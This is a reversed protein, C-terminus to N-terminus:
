QEFVWKGNVLKLQPTGTPQAGPQATAAPAAAPGFTPPPGLTPPIIHAPNLGLDTALGHIRLREDDLRSAAAQTMDNALTVLNELEALPIKGGGEILQNIAGRIRTSLGSFQAPRAAEAERVVSDPDLAREFLVIISEAGGPLYGNSSKAANLATKMQAVATQGDRVKQSVLRWDDRLGMTHQAREATSLPRGANAAAVLTARRAAQEPSSPPQAPITTKIRPDARLYLEQSYGTPSSPDPIVNGEAYSQGAGSSRLKQTLVAELGKREWDPEGMRRYLTQWGQVDGLVEAEQKQAILDAATPFIDPLRLVTRKGRVAAPPGVPQTTAGPLGEAILGPRPPPAEAVPLRPGATIPAAAAGAPGAMGATGVPAPPAPPAATAGPPAPPAAVAPPAVAPPAAPSVTHTGPTGGYPTPLQEAPTYALSSPAELTGELEYSSFGMTTPALPGAYPTPFFDPTQVGPVTHAQAYEAEYGRQARESPFTARPTVRMSVETQSPGTPAAAAPAAATPTGAASGAAAQQQMGQWLPSQPWSPAASPMAFPAPTAATMPGGTVPTTTPQAASGTPPPATAVSGAPSSVSPQRPITLDEEEFEQPEQSYRQILGMYPSREIEGM